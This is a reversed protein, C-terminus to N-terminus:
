AQDEARGRGVLSWAVLIVIVLVPLTYYLYSYEAAGLWISADEEDLPSTIFVRANESGVLTAEAVRAVMTLIAAGASVALSAIAARMRVLMKNHGHQIANRAGIAWILVVAILSTVLLVGSPEGVTDPRFAILTLADLLWAAIPWWFRWGGPGGLERLIGSDPRNLPQTSGPQDNAPPNEM